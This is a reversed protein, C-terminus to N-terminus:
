CHSVYVPVHQYASEDYFWPLAVASNRFDPYEVYVGTERLAAVSGVVAQSRFMFVHMQLSTCRIYLM